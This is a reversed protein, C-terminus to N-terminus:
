FRLFFQSFLECQSFERMEAALKAKIDFKMLSEKLQNCNGLPSFHPYILNILKFIIHVAGISDVRFVLSARM